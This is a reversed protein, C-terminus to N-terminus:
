YHFQTFPSQVRHFARCSMCERPRSPVSVLSQFRLIALPLMPGRQTKYTLAWLHSM